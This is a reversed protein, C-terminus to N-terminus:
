SQNSVPIDHFVTFCIIVCLHCKVFNVSVSVMNLCRKGLPKFVIKNECYLCTNYFNGSKLTILM